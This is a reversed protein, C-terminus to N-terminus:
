KQKEGIKKEMRKPKEESKYVKPNPINRSKREVKGTSLKFLNQSRIKIIKERYESNQLESNEEIKKEM